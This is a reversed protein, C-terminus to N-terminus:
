FHPKLFSIIQESPLVYLMPLPLSLNKINLLSLACHFSFYSALALHATFLKLVDGVMHQVIHFRVIVTVFFVSIASASCNMTPTASNFQWYVDEV